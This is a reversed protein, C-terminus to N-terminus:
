LVNYNFHQMLDKSLFKNIFKVNEETLKDKWREKGYYDQYYKNNKKKEKTSKVFNRPFSTAENLDLATSIEKLEHIPNLLLEEYKVIHTNFQKEFKLYSEVKKNWMDIPNNYSERRSERRVTQWPTLLFDEFSQKKSGLSHYPNKHLSLLWSYPNKVIILFVIKENDLLRKKMFPINDLEKHKWGLNFKRMLFFYFDLSKEKYPLRMFIHAYIRNETGSYIYNNFKLLKMLYITGTNREGFLKIRNLKKNM